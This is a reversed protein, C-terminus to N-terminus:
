QVNKIDLLIQSKLKELSSFKEEPRLFKLLKVRIKEGYIDDNFDLLHAELVPKQVLNEFTPKMGFNAVSSYEKGSVLVKAVYAGFPTKVLENPYEINATKFGIKRALQAGKYVIGDITFEHGLLKNAGLIDGNALKKRIISSSVVENNLIVPSHEFYKYNFTKELNKLLEPTGSKKSGFYHNFGTSIACPQFNKVLVDHIYNEGSINALQSFDLEYCYDVGLKELYERKLSDTAIYEPTLGRLFVQPHDKFTIVASKTNHKKAFNVATEIVAQHGIHVGDFVGLALSLKKNKDHLEFFTEM